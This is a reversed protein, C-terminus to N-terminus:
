PMSRLRHAAFLAHIETMTTGAELTPKKPLQIDKINWPKPRTKIITSLRYFEDVTLLSIRAIHQAPESLIPHHTAITIPLNISRMFILQHKQEPLAKPSAHKKVATRKLNTKRPYPKKSHKRECEGSKRKSTNRRARMSKPRLRLDGRILSCTEERACPNQVNSGHPRKVSQYPHPWM